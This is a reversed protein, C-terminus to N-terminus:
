VAYVQDDVVYLIHYFRAFLLYMFTPSYSNM